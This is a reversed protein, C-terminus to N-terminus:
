HVYIYGRHVHTSYAPERGDGSYVMCLTAAATVEGRHLSYRGGVTLRRSTSLLFTCVWVTYRTHYM